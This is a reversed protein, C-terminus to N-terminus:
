LPIDWAPTSPFNLALTHVADKPIRPVGLCSLLLSCLFLPLNKQIGSGRPSSCHTTPGQTADQPLSPYSGELAKSAQGLRTTAQLLVLWPEQNILHGPSRPPPRLQLPALSLPPLTLAQNSLLTMINPCGILSPTSPLSLFSQPLMGPEPM